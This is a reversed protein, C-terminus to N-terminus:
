QSWYYKNLLEPGKVTMFHLHSLSAVANAILTKGCGPHVLYCFEQDFDYHVKNSFQRM